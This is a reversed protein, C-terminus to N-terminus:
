LKRDHVLTKRYSDLSLPILPGGTSSKLGCGYTFTQSRSLLDATEAGRPSSRFSVSSSFSLGRFFNTTLKNSYNIKIIKELSIYFTHTEIKKENINVLGADIMFFDIGM